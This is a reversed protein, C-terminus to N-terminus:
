QATTTASTASAGFLFCFLVRTVNIFAELALLSLPCKSAATFGSATSAQM